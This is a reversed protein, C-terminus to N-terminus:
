QRTIISLTQGDGEISLAIDGATRISPTITMPNDSDLGQIKHIEALKEQLINIIGGMTAPDTYTGNLSEWISDALVTYDVGGSSALNLKNGMTGVKNFDSAISNWVNAALSEPSLETFPTINASINAVSRIGVELSGISNIAIVLNAIAKINSTLAGIGQINSVVNGAISARGALSSLGAMTVAIDETYIGTWLDANFIQGYGSLNAAAEIIGALVPSSFFQGLGDITSELKAIASIDSSLTGQGEIVSIINAIAKINSNNFQGLGNINFSSIGAQALIDTNNFLGTGNIKNTSVINAPAQIATSSDFQGVGNILNTEIGRGAAGYANTFNGSALISSTSAMGGERIPLNWATPALNGIPVGYYISMEGEGVYRNLMRSLQSTRMQSTYGVSNYPEAFRLSINQLLGM